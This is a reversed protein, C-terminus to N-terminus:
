TAAGATGGPADAPAHQLMGQLFAVQQKLLKNEAGLVANQSTVAALQQRLSGNDAMLASLASSRKSRYKSSASRNSERRRQKRQEETLPGSPLAIGAISSPMGGLGGTVGCAGGGGAAAGSPGACAAHHCTSACACTGGALMSLPGPAIAAAATQEDSRLSSLTSDSSVSASDFADLVEADAEAIADLTQSRDAESPVPAPPLACKECHHNLSSMYESLCRAADHYLAPDHSLHELKALLKELISSRHARPHAVARACGPARTRATARRVPRRESLGGRAGRGDDGRPVGRM